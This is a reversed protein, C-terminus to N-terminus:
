LIHSRGIFGNCSIYMDVGLTLLEMLQVSRYSGTQLHGSEVVESSINVVAELGANGEQRQLAHFLVAM